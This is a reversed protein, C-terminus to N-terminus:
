GLQSWGTMRGVEGMIDVWRGFVSINMNGFAGGGTDTM